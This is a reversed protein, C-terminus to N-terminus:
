IKAMPYFFSQMMFLGVMHPQQCHKCTFEVQPLFRQDYKDIMARIVAMDRSSFIKMNLCPLWKTENMVQFDRLYIDTNQNRSEQPIDLARKELKGTLIHFKCSKKSPVEFTHERQKGLPLPTIQNSRYEEPPNKFDTDFEGLDEDYESRKKCHENNCINTFHMEPGLNLIRQKFLLYDIDKMFWEELDDMLPKNPNDHDKIIINALFKNISRNALANGLKSLEEEDDGNNERIDVVKGSPLYVTHTEGMYMMFEM